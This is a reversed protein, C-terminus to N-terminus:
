TLESVTVRLKGSATLPISDVYSFNCAVETGMARALERRVAAVTDDGFGEGRVLVVELTDLQRQVVQYRRIGEVGLLADDSLGLGMLPLIAVTAPADDASAEAAALQAAFVAVAIRAIRSAALPAAM